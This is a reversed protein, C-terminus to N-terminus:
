RYWSKAKEIYDYRANHIPNFRRLKNDIIGGLMSTKDHEIEEFESSTSYNGDFTQRFSM